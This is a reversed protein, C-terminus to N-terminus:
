NMPPNVGAPGAVPLRIRFRTGAGPVSDVVIEGDHRKVIGYAISLGLGAGQGVPKTTFFPEFIRNRHEPAIGSGNDAIEVWVSGAEAWIRVGVEGDAEIAHAANVLLNMFVQNLQGPLCLIEPIEGFERRVEAKHKLENAVINLTRNLGHRLDSWEWTDHEGSRSFDRLDHVIGRVREIGEQCERLLTPIDQRLFAIDLEQKRAAIGAQAAPSSLAPEAAEYSALLAFVDDIYQRLHGVNSSVHGIPTNIEHAVGAALQGVSAMKESHLLQCQARKLEELLRAQAEEALKRATIDIHAVVCGTGHPLRSAQMLYWRQTDSSHCPYELEFHAMAGTLLAQLGDCAAQALVDGQAASSRSVALYDVGIGCRQPVGQEGATFDEWAKNVAVIVGRGDLVAIHAALADLVGRLWATEAVPAAAAGGAAEPLRQEINQCYRM